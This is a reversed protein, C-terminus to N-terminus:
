LNTLLFTLVTAEYHAMALSNQIGHHEQPYVQVQHPKGAAILANILLATHHFHVNEDEMGHVLMLRNPTDPFMTAKNLVSGATYVAARQAPMGMYRETYATDYANWLCVPACAVAVKFIDPRQALGMLSLFGGYSWGFIAVRNPDICCSKSTILHQLGEVQDEIEVTGMAHKLHGEWKLGRRASGRCDMQVVVFGMQTYLNYRSNRAARYENAVLQVRPGGYVALITPYRQGANSNYGVPLFVELHIVNGAKSVFSFPVPPVYFGVTPHQFFLRDECLRSSSREIKCLYGKVPEERSSRLDIAVIGKNPDMAVCHSMGAVTLRVPERWTAGIYSRAPQNTGGGSGDCNGASGDTPVVLDARYFHSELPSDKTASFYISGTAADVHIHSDDVQWEGRTIIARHTRKTSTCHTVVEIHRFGSQETAWLFNVAGSTPSPLFTLVNHVNIWVESTEEVAISIQGRLIDAIKSDYDLSLTSRCPGSGNSAEGITADDSAPQQQPRVAEFCALPILVLALRSQDRDLLQVWVQEGLPTWGCRVIYECWPYIVRLPVPLRLHAVACGGNADDFELEAIWLEISANTSGAPPIRYVESMRSQTYTPVDIAAVDTEDVKEFLIRQKTIGAGPQWWHGVHRDFEEHIVFPPM